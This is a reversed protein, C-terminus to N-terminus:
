AKKRTRASPYKVQRVGHAPTSHSSANGAAEAVMSLPATAQGEIEDVVKELHIAAWSAMTRKDAEALRKIRLKLALPMSVGLIASNEPRHTSMHIQYCEKRPHEFIIKRPFHHKKNNIGRYPTLCQEHSVLFAIGVVQLGNESDPKIWGEAFLEFGQGFGIAAGLGAKGAEVERPDDLCLFRFQFGDATNSFEHPPQHWGCPRVRDSFATSLLRGALKLFGHFSGFSKEASGAM